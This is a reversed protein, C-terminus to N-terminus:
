ETEAGEPQVVGNKQRELVTGLSFAGIAMLVAALLVVGPSVGLWQWVFTEGMAGANSFSNMIPEMESYIFIGFLIGLIYWVADIKGTSLAVCSTGPCYGGITFGLGLLLGGVIQPWIFTLNIFTFSLDLMGLSVLGWFGLGAVVVATFMVKLVAFDKLYFQATLKRASGFGAKELFYGFGIGVIFAMLLGTTLSFAGQPELPFNM